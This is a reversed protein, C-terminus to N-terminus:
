QATVTAASASGANDVPVTQATDTDDDAGNSPVARATGGVDSDTDTITDAIVDVDDLLAGISDAIVDADDPLVGITDAVVDADDPPIGIVNGM